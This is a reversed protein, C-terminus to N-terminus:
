PRAPPPLMLWIGDVAAVGLALNQAVGLLFAAQVGVISWVIPVLVVRRPCPRELFMLLGVTFITPPCPLGFTPM